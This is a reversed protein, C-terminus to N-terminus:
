DWGECGCYFKDYEADPRYQFFPLDFSSPRKAGCGYVCKAERGELSPQEAIEHCMCIPCIPINDPNLKATTTHGCKMYYTESM